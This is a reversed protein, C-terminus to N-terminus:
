VVKMWNKSVKGRCINENYAVRKNISQDFPQDVQIKIRCIMVDFPFSGTTWHPGTIM